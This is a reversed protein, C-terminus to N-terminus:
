VFDKLWEKANASDSFIKFPYPAKVIMNQIQEIYKAVNQSTKSPAYIAVASVNIAKAMEFLADFSVSHSQSADVLVPSPKKAVADVVKVVEVMQSRNIEEGICTITLTVIEDTAKIIEGISCQISTM